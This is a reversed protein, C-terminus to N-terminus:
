PCSFRPFNFARDNKQTFLIPILGVAFVFVTGVSFLLTNYVGAIPFYYDGKYERDFAWIFTGKLISLIDGKSFQTKIHQLKRSWRRRVLSRITRRPYIRHADVVLCKFNNCFDSNNTHFLFFRILM